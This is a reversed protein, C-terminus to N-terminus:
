YNIHVGWAGENKKLTRIRVKTGTRAAEIIQGNGIYIAIHDAGTDRNHDWAVLDGPQLSDISVRRGRRAQAMSVRPLTVGAQKFAAWVLGSCDFGGEKLSEGGWKYSAKDVWQKAWDIVTQRKADPAAEQILEEGPQPLLDFEPAAPSAVGPALFGTGPDEFSFDPIESEIGPTEPSAVQQALTLSQISGTPPWPM